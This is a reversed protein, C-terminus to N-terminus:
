HTVERVMLFFSLFFRLFFSPRGAGGRCEVERGGVWQEQAREMWEGGGGGM